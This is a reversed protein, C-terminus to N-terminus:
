AFINSLINAPSEIVTLNPRLYVGVGGSAVTASEASKALQDYATGRKYWQLM